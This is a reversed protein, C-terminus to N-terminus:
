GIGESNAAWDTLKLMFDHCDEMESVAIFEDPLHAQEISGPGFIVGPVGVKQFQGAETGYSVRGSENLGTLHRMLMEAPSDSDPSLGPVNHRQVHTVGAKESIAKLGPEIEAAIFDMVEAVLADPNDEPVCRFGWHFECHAPIINAATGGTIVGCDITTYPPNFGNSPDANDKLRQQMDHLFAIIRGAAMIANAGLDPLSSHGDVGHVTTFFGQGGKNGGVIQMSTPEGVIVALPTPLNDRMDHILGLVGTCGVEEDYSFAFHIPTKLNAEKMRAAHAIACAVFGKMDASGRAFLKGDREVLQFPDSSWDQGDVPVVDTHGSLVVGGKDTPGITAWLNAKTREENFTLRTEVGIDDLLGRVYDILELNSNRSTTDFAVLKELMTICDKASPTTSIM